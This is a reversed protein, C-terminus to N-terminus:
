LFTPLHSTSPQLEQGGRGDRDEQGREVGARWERNRGKEKKGKEGMQSHPSAAQPHRAM